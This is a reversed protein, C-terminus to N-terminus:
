DKQFKFENTMQIKFNLMSKLFSHIEKKFGLSDRHNAGGWLTIMAASM